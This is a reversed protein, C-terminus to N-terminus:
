FSSLPSLVVKHQWTVTQHKPTKQFAGVIGSHLCTKLDVEPWYKMTPIDVTEIQRDEVNGETPAIFINEHTSPATPTIGEVIGDFITDDYSQFRRLSNEYVNNVTAFTPLITQHTAAGKNTVDVKNRPQPGITEDENSLMSTLVYRAVERRIDSSSSKTSMTIKPSLIDNFDDSRCFTSEKASCKQHEDDSRMSRKCEFQSLRTPGGLRCIKMIRGFRGGSTGKEDVFTRELRLGQLSVNFGGVGDWEIQDSALLNEGKAPRYDASHTSRISRLNQFIMIQKTPLPISLLVYRCIAGVVFERWKSRFLSTKPIRSNLRCARSTKRM